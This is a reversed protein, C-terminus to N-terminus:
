KAGKHRSKSNRWNELCVAVEVVDEEAVGLLWVADEAYNALMYEIHYEGDHEWYVMFRRKKM